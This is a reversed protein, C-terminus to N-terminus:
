FGTRCLVGPSGPPPWCIRWKFAFRLSHPASAFLKRWYDESPFQYFSFDGCVVPFTLAYEGLCEAEFKKQSFRGRTLYREETYIRGLWGEYKWSSTGFYIGRAALAIGPCVVFPNVHGEM